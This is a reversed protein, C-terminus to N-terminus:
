SCSRPSRRLARIATPRSRSPFVRRACPRSRPVKTERLAYFAGPLLVAVTGSAAMAAIGADSTYEIHDASLAGSEAALRAGDMDSLQDAHLKVPLGHAHAAEFV